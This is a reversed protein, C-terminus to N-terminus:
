ECPPLPGSDFGGLRGVDGGLSRAPPTPCSTQQHRTLADGRSFTKKCWGCIRRGYKCHCTSIHRALTLLTKYEQECTHGDDLTWHCTLVTALAQRWGVGAKGAANSALGGPPTIARNHFAQLHRKLGGPSHDDLPIRCTGWRCPLHGPSSHSGHRGTSAVVIPRDRLGYQMTSGASGQPHHSALRQEPAWVKEPDTHALSVLEKHCVADLVAGQRSATGTVTMPLRGLLTYPKRAPAGAAHDYRQRYPAM